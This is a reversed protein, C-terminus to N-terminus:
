CPQVWVFVNPIEMRIQAALQRAFLEDAHLSEQWPDGDEMQDEPKDSVIVRFM